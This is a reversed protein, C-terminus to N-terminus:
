QGASFFDLKKKKRERLKAPLSLSLSLSIYKDGERKRERRLLLSMSEMESRWMLSVETYILLWSDLSDICDKHRKLKMRGEERNM